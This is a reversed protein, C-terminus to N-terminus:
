IEWIKAGKSIQYGDNVIDPDGIYGIYKGERYIPYWADGLYLWDEKNEVKKNNM